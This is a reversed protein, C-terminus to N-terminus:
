KTEAIFSANLRLPIFQPTTERVYVKLRMKFLDKGIIYPKCDLIGPILDIFNTQEFTNQDLFAIDSFTTENVKMQLYVRDIISLDVVDSPELMELRFARPLLSQVTDATLNNISLFTESDTNLWPTEIYSTVLPSIGASLEFDLNYTFLAESDNNKKCSGVGLLVCTALLFLLFGISGKLISM